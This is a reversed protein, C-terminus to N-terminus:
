SLRRVSDIALDVHDFVWYHGAGPVIEARCDPLLRALHRGMIAPVLRDIAGHFLRVPVRIDRLSFGWPRGFLAVETAVPGGGRVFGDRLGAILAARVEARRMIPRDAPLNMGVVREFMRDPHRRWAWGAIGTLARLLRPARVGGGFIIRHPRELGQTAEPGAVPAVSSVLLVNTVRAPMYAASALAYPGGGSVGVLAVRDLALHDILAEVDAAFDLYRRAPMPDSLGFGPRDPAILRVRGRRAPRDAVALMLRSGPTGHCGIVPQGGPEGYEAFGLRRGDQLTITRGPLVM